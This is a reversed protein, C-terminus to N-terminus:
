QKFYFRSLLKEKKHDFSYSLSNETISKDDNHSLVQTSHRLNKTKGKKRKKQCDTSPNEQLTINEHKWFTTSTIINKNLM